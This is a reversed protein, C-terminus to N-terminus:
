KLRAALKAALAEGRRRSLGEGAGRGLGAEALRCRRHRRAIVHVHLQAVVNGLAAVNLKDCAVTERLAASALVIEDM